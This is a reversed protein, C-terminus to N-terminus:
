RLETWVTGAALERPAFDAALNERDSCRFECAGRKKGAAQEERDGARGFAAARAKDLEGDPPHGPARRQM